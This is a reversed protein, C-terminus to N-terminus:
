LGMRVHPTIFFSRNWKSAYLESDLEIAAAQAYGIGGYANLPDPMPFWIIENKSFPITENGVQAVYGSIFERQSKVPSILHPPIVWIEAPVGLANRPLYWYAKGALIRHLATLEMIEGGTQFENAYDLLKLIPHETVQNREGRDNGRYLRWKVEGIATAIRLSIGFLSYVEGYAAMLGRSDREPPSVWSSAYGFRRSIEQKAKTFFPIRM